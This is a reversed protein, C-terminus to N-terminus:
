NQFRRLRRKMGMIGSGEGTVTQVWPAPKVKGRGDDVGEMSIDEDFSGDAGQERQKLMGNRSTELHMDETYAWGPIDLSGLVLVTKQPELQAMLTDNTPPVIVHLSQNAADIGRVLALSILRSNRPNLPETSGTDESSLYPLNGGEANRTFTSASFRTDDDDVEVIGVVSGDLITPLLASQITEGMTIIGLIDPEDLGYNVVYPVRSSLPTMDWRPCSEVDEVAEQHFYSLMQMERLEGATRAAYGSPQSPIIHLKYAKGNEELADLTRSSDETTYVIDSLDLLKLLQLLIQLGTGVTWGPANVVLPSRRKEKKIVARYHNVLDLACDVYHDPNEKPSNSGIFHARLPTAFPQHASPHLFPPNYNPQHMEVLSVQGAPSFEPQGPDLDLLYVSDISEHAERTMTLLRNAILRSFTSKGTSKPGCAMVRPVPKSPLPCIKNIAQEWKSPVELHYLPRKYPDDSLRHINAFSWRKRCPKLEVNEKANWLRGYLPSLRELRSITDECSKIELEAGYPSVCQIVPLAHTSPAFVRQFGHLPRLIAGYLIIVGELVRVEYKGLNVITQKYKLRVLWGHSTESIVNKKTPTWTSLEVLP